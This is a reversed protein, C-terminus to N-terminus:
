RPANAIERLHWAGSAAAVAVVAGGAIAVATGLSLADSLLGTGIATVTVSLYVFTIFAATVEGRRETPALQNIETQAGFYSLGLGIGALVAAALVLALAHLPFAVVLAALGAILFGLGLPQARRPTMVGRLCIAQAVCAMALMFASIAGLLALNSTTLLEAVYSPVVSLFLAGVAWAAACTLSARTFAARIPAPVSPKQLRWEGTGERPERLMLVGIAAVISAGVGILYCLQKPAPAWQALAGALLPGAASGGSQGLVAAMAARGHDGEPELEVLAAPITGVATGLALGQVARAVFLQATSQATALLVLGVAAVVLGGAIVPRRGIRDSLQGFVLLSPVLMIAYVAFILTLTTGSFGFEERYVAYLPTPLNGDLLLVFLAGAVIFFSPSRPRARAAPAAM